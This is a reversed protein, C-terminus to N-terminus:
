EQDPDPLLIENVTQKVTELKSTLDEGSFGMEELMKRMQEDAQEPTLGHDQTLGLYVTALGMDAMWHQRKLDEGIQKVEDKYHDEAAIYGWGKQAQFVGDYALDHYSRVMHPIGRETLIMEMLRAELEHELVIVKKFETM